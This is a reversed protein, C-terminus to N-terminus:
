TNDLTNQYNFITNLDTSVQDITPGEVINVGGAQTCNQCCEPCDPIIIYRLNELLLSKLDCTLQSKNKEWNDAFKTNVNDAIAGLKSNSTYILLFFTLWATILIIAILIIGVYYSITGHTILAIVLVIFIIAYPITQLLALQLIMSQIDDKIFEGIGDFTKPIDDKLIYGLSYLFNPTLALKTNKRQLCSKYVDSNPEGFQSCFEPIIIHPCSM